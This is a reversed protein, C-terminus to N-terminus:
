KRDLDMGKYEEFSKKFMENPIGLSIDINDKKAKEVIYEIFDQAYDNGNKLVGLLIECWIPAVKYYDSEKYYKELEEYSYDIEIKEYQIDEDISLIGYKFKRGDVPFGIAGPNIFHRDKYKTYYYQHEHGFLYLDCNFDEILKDFVDYSDSNVDGRVSYPTSHSMCIKKNNCEFIKYIPLLKIYDLNERSLCEYGYKMSSYQIYTDWLENKNNDYEIISVERNGNIAHGKCNKIIDIIKNTEFGDTVYDGLFLFMDVNRFLADEYAKKFVLYNSHIDAFVAIKM